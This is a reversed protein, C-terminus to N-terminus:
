ELFDSGAVQEILAIYDRGSLKDLVDKPLNSCQEIIVNCTEQGNSLDADRLVKYTPEEIEIETITEDGFRLHNQLKYTLMAM